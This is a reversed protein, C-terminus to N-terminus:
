YNSNKDEEQIMVKIAKIIEQDNSSIKDEIKKLMEKKMMEKMIVDQENSMDKNEMPNRM